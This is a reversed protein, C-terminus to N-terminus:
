KFAFIKIAAKSMSSFNDATICWASFGGYISAVVYIARKSGDDLDAGECMSLTLHKDLGPGIYRKDCVLSCVVSSARKKVQEDVDVGMFQSASIVRLKIVGRSNDKKSEDDNDNEDSSASAVFFTGESHHQWATPLACAALATVLSCLSHIVFCGRLFGSCLEM